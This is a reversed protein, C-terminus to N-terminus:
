WVAVSDSAFIQDLLRRYDPDRVTLDAVQVELEPLTQQRAIVEAALMDNPRTVIHLISPMESVPSM